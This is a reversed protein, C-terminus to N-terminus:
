YYGNISMVNCISLVYYPRGKPSNVFLVNIEINKWIYIRRVYYSWPKGHEQNNSNSKKVHKQFTKFYAENKFPAYM